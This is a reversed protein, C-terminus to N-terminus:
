GVELRDKKKLNFPALAPPEDAISAEHIAKESSGLRDQLDAIMTAADECVQEIDAQESLGLVKRLRAQGQQTWKKRGPSIDGTKSFKGPPKKEADNYAKQPEGILAAM